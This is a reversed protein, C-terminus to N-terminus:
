GGESGFGYVISSGKHDQDEGGCRVEGAQHQVGDEGGAQCGRRRIRRRRSGLVHHRIYCPRLPQAGNEPPLPDLLRIARAQHPRHARRSHARAESDRRRLSSRRYRM